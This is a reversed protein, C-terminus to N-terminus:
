KEKEPTEIDVHVKVADLILNGIESELDKKDVEIKIKLNFEHSM